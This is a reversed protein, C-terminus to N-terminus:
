KGFVDYVDQELEEPCNKEDDEDCIDAWSDSKKFMKKFMPLVKKEIPKGVKTEVCCEEGEAAESLLLMYSKSWKVLEDSIHPESEVPESEVPESEVPESKVPESEVPESEVPESEVPESKVVKTPTSVLQPWEEPKQDEKSHGITSWGNQNTVVKRRDTRRRFPIDQQFRDQQFRRQQFRGQSSRPKKCHKTTHGTGGCNNCETNALAQCHKIHHGPKHCFSCSKNSRSHYQNSM